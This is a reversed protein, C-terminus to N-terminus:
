GGKMARAFAKGMAAARKLDGEHRLRFQEDTALRQEFAAKRAATIADGKAWM